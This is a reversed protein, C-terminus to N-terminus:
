EALLTFRGGGAAGDVVVHVVRAQPAPDIEVTEVGGAFTRDAGVICASATCGGELVYLAADYGAEPTLTLRAGEGAALALAYVLDNGATLYGTCSEATSAFLDDAAWTTDGSAPAGKTLPLAGACSENPLTPPLTVSLRFDVPVGGTAAVAVAYSAAPGSAPLVRDIRLVRGGECALEGLCSEGGGGALQLAAAGSASLDIVVRREEDLQFAYYVEPAGPACGLSGDSAAGATRGEVTVTGTDLPLGIAAACTDNLPPEIPELLQVALEFGGATGPAGGVVLAYVGADLRAVDLTGVGDAFAAACSLESGCGEQQLSLRVPFDGRAVALLRSPEAVEVRWARDPGGANCAGAMGSAEAGLTASRIRGRDGGVLLAPAAACAPEDETAVYMEYGRSVPASASVKVLVTRAAPEPALAAVLGGGRLSTATGVGLPQSGDATFLSLGVGASGGEPFVFAQLGRGAPVQVTYFDDDGCLRLGGLPTDTPIAKPENRSNNPELVDTCGLGGPTLSALLGYGGQAGRTSRVRLYYRGVAALPLQRVLLQGGIGEITRLERTVPDHWALALTAGAPPALLEARLGAGEAGALVLWDEDNPCLTRTVVTGPALPVASAPDDDPESADDACGAEVCAGGTCIRGPGCDETTACASAAVCAGGECWLGAPCDLSTACAVCSGGLCRGAACDADGTCTAAEVCAGDVCTGRPCEERTRCAQCLGGNCVFNGRCQSDLTCEQPLVCAHGVCREGRGCHADVVCAVCAGSAADCRPVRPDYACDDDSGCSGAPVCRDGECRAGIPCDETTACAIAVCAGAECREHIGCDGDVLCAVCAGTAPDCLPGTPSGACDEHGHCVFPAECRGDVCRQGEGCDGDEVCSVCRGEEGCIPLDPFAACDAPEACSLDVCAGGRCSRGGSCHGDERCAVCIGRGGDNRCFPRAPDAAACTEDDECEIPPVVCGGAECREGEPCHDDVLCAVCGNGSELCYPGDPGCDDDTTCIAGRCVGGSCTRGSPCHADVICGTCKGTEVDCFSGDPHLFCDGNTRCGTPQQREVCVGEICDHNAPCTVGRCPDRATEPADSCAALFVPFLLTPLLARLNPM